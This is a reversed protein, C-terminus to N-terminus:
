VIIPLASNRAHVAATLAIGDLIPMQIDTIILDAGRAEYSALAAQGNQAETVVATPYSHLVLLRMLLRQSSDDDVILIHIPSMMRILDQSKCRLVGAAPWRTPSRRRPLRRRRRGSTRHMFM